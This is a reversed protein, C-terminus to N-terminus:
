RRGEIRIARILDNVAESVETGPEYTIGGISNYTNGVNGMDKHLKNIAGVVDDIKGNQNNENMMSRIARINTIPTIMPNSFLGSMVTAQEEVDSLDVVPRITPTSDIGSDILDSVQSIASSISQTATEGMGQGAQYTDRTMSNMGNVLGQGLWIGAQYTLKSPSKSKQGDKEGRVAAQGLAFGANYAAQQQANIGNILGAGLNVGNSYMNGSYGSAANSAASALSRGAAVAASTQAVLGRVLSSALKTGSSVFSATQSTISTQMSSVMKSAASTVSSSSSTMGQSLAKTLNSGVSTIKGVGKNFTNAVQSINTKGLESVATRFKSVGSTDLGSLSSIFVKLKQAATVSSIVKAVSLAEVSNSYSSLSKGLGSVKFNSIGSADFGSLGSVFSKLRNAATISKSVVGTDIDEVQNSYKKIAKGIDKVKSFSDIGSNDFDVIGMAFTKLRNAMSISQSVVGADMESVNEGFNGIAKGINKIKEFESVGSMDIDVISNAFTRLRNALSIAMSMKGTDVDGVSDGFQKMAGGFQSIRTGFEALNLKGDFWHEEPLAKQLAALLKGSNIAATIAGENIANEGTLSDSAQKISSAFKSVQSGFNGLDKQGTIAKQLLSAPEVAKQLEVFSDGIGKISGLNDLGTASIAAVANAATNINTAYESVQQGFTGLDQVGTFAQKLGSVPAITGQLDSFAQGLTAISGLNDLGTASITAVANAAINLNYAYTAIQHGFDGLDQVGTFTQVIGAVPAISNQLASLDQGLKTITEINSTDTESLGSIVNAFSKMANGFVLVQDAFQEIPDKGFNIFKSIGSLVSAGTIELITDALAKVGDIASTDIGSFTNMFTKLNEAIEPLGSTAGATFGGIISGFFAGLGYGIKQLVVIGEDLFKQAGPIMGILGAVTGFLLAVGGLVLMLQAAGTAASSALPGVKSLILTSTSLALLMVSIAQVDAMNTHLDLKNLIGLITGVGGMIFAMATMGAIASNSVDDITSIIKTAAALAIMVGSLIVANQASANLNLANLVGLVVGVIAMVGAMAVMGKLASKSVDDIDSIVKLAAALAIMMISLSVATALSAEVPLGGLLYLIGALAAVVLTLAAMAKLSGTASSSAKAMLAFMGMLTIMCATAGILQKQDLGSLLWVAGAMMGIAVTMVILNKMCDSAGKTAAIMLAMFASLMGVAAIGKALSATDVFSLLVCIAALIGISISMTLLTKSMNAADPGVMKIAKIMTIMMATFATIALGGKIMDSLSLMGVLKMVGVLIAMSVSVSLLLGGLKAISSGSDIKAVNVLAMMFILFAGAFAAGKLMESASLMGVLKVVGVMIAMSISISMLLGSLKAMQTGSDVAIAKKLAAVFLVFAAAFTAGKLMESASLMGVLKVVVAMLLMATAMKKLMIGAKDINQAAKGKVFLGFSAFIAAMAVVVGAMGILGQKMQDPNMSGMVKVAAAVLLLAMGIGVLGTKLGSLNLKKEAGDVAISAKSLKDMAFSLGILIGALIGITVVAKAIDEVKLQAIVYVAAALIGISIALNKIAESKIKLATAKMVKSLGEKFTNLLDSVSSLVNGLAEFPSAFKDLTDTLKKISYVVAVLGAVAFVKGWDIQKAASILKTGLSSIFDVIKSAMEKLGNWLDLITNKGIDYMVTSPSHIGLVGKIANIISKGINILIEAVSSIGNSLGNKLGDIINQGVKSLDINKIYELFDKVVPLEKVFGILQSFGEIAMKIGQGLLEFGKTVLDNSFLFDRFAVIADGITATVDLFNMDFAKLVSNIAKFAFSLGGGIITRIIDLAAFVGKLTRTLESANNTTFNKIVATFKHFGAIINFLTDATVPDFISKWADSVSKFVTVLSQWINKFSNFLLWKGSIQDINDIFEDTSMGLKDATEGLEKFAAIQKKSYGESKMQEESMKAIKKLLNKKEDTLEATAITEEGTKGIAKDQAKIQDETYRYGCGLTENVKNQVRYYNEGAKTLADFREQGNGFDGRIVKDVVDGLDNVAEMAKQAPETIGSLKEKLDGFGKGLASELLKNRADSMRDIMPSLVDNVNTWLNKAEEFDGFILQWTKTWGSGAAEKLTDILQTFTKVKTAADEATKAFQLSNKIEEKSKGSQKALSEAAKDIADANKGWADTEKLTAEVAEKSLGTYEAVYETAGSTTFKKLTETLVESTLWGTQLSERFSGKAEIAAKAGTQLKESTETLADQFMQGGMGANVVSNWDQLKITGAALAQSLQYMATSAQQSNSGSVAALNAIGQIANVSTNLDVGAATFTGINRTMETFNYITKDAYTNLTDLAKNVQDITTGEKQTNALITQVSNMQTEYEAFGDKIPDITFASALNKGAEIASNTINALATVGMVQLASFKASVTEVGKSLGSMDTRKAASNLKELGDSAGKLNLKQKLKDLTSMSTKVNSEFQKNDFRMEVVRSDVVNSM